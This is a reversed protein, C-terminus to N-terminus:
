QKDARNGFVGSVLAALGKKPAQQGSDAPKNSRAASLHLLQVYNKQFVPNEPELARAKAIYKEAGAFDRREKLLVLGLRNYVAAPQASRAIASELVGIARDVQGSQELAIAHQLPDVASEFKVPAHRVRPATPVNAPTPVKAPAPASVAAAVPEAVPLPVPVPAPVMAPKFVAAPAAAVPPADPEVVSELALEIPAPVVLDLPLVPATEATVLTIIGRDVLTKTVAHFEPETLGSTRRLDLLTTRADVMSVVFAEFPSMRCNMIDLGHAVMPVDAPSQAYMMPVTAVSPFDEAPAPADPNTAPLAFPHLGSQPPSLLTRIVSGMDPPFQEDLLARSDLLLECAPCQFDTSSLQLGCQSCQLEKSM